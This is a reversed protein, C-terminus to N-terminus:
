RAPENVFSPAYAVYFALERERRPITATIHWMKTGANTSQRSITFLAEKGDSLDIKSYSPVGDSIEFRHYKGNVEPIGCEKVEIASIPGATCYDKDAVSIAKNSEQRLSQVDDEEKQSEEQSSTKLLVAVTEEILMAGLEKQSLSKEERYYNGKGIKM